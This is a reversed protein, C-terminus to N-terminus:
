VYNFKQPLTIAESFQLYQKEFIAGLRPCLKGVHLLNLSIHTVFADKFVHCLDILKLLEDCPYEGEDQVIEKLEDLIASHGSIYGYERPLDFAKSMYKAIYHAAMKPSRPLEIRTHANTDKADSSVPWNVGEAILLRKWKWSVIYYPIFNNLIIHFHLKGSNEGVEKKWVYYANATRRLYDLFHDFAKLMQKPKTGEPATLTLFAVKMNYSRGAKTKFNRTQTYYTLKKCYNACKRSQTKNLKRKIHVQELFLLYEDPSLTNIVQDILYSRQDDSGSQNFEKIYYRLTENGYIAANILNRLSNAHSGHNCDEFKKFVTIGTHSYKANLYVLPPM